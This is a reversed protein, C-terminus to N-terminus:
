GVELGGELSSVPHDKLFAFIELVRLIFDLSRQFGKTHEKRGVAEVEDAGGKQAGQRILCLSVQQEQFM